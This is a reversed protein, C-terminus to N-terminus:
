CRPIWMPVQNMYSKYDAGFRDLLLKEEYRALYHYFGIIVVWVIMAFISLTLLCLGGYFLM